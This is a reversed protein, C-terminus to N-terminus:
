HCCVYQLVCQDFKGILCPALTKDYNCQLLHVHFYKCIGLVISIPISNPCFNINFGKWSSAAM